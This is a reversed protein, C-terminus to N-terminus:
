FWPGITPVEGRNDDDSRKRPAPPRGFSFPTTSLVDKGSGHVLVHVLRTPMPLLYRRCLPNFVAVGHKSRTQVTM